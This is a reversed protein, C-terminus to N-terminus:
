APQAARSTRAAEKAPSVGKLLKADRKLDAWWADDPKVAALEDPTLVVASFHVGLQDGLAQVADRVRHSAELGSQEVVLLIDVDSGPRDEGRAVSGYLWASRVERWSALAQRLAAQFSEWRSREHEFLAKLADALPHVLAVCYLQSRPQGLVQVMGQSVLSDLILRVGRTTLGSDAAVQAVSLPAGYSMLVRLVRVHGGGALLQTLPFRLHSQPTSAQM